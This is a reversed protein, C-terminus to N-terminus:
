LFILEKTSSTLVECDEVGVIVMDEIRVGGWGPLYIGPEVTVVMGAQLVTNSLASLRPEEHISLGVGHGLSHGWYEGYGADTIIRRAISDIEAGSLGSRLASLAERQAKLVLGYIFQQQETPKGVVVTRSIDSHYGAFVAGFDMLVMEGQVILKNSAIGHPLAGRPGSAVITDFAAKGSGRKRMIFEIEAALDKELVGPRILPLVQQFAYDSIEVAKKLFSIEELDKVQRLREVLGNQPQLIVPKIKESWTNFQDYTIFDNEFGLRSIGLVMVKDVVTQALQAGGNIIQYEPAEEHAQQEYRFDTILFAQEQTILLIGASGSFGSLYLRNEPKCVLLAELSQQLLEKRLKQLRRNM